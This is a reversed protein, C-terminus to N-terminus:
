AEVLAASFLPENSYVAAPIFSEGGKYKEKIIKIVYNVIEEVSPTRGIFAPRGGLYITPLSKLTATFLDNWTNYPVIILKVSYEKRLIDSAKRLNEIAKESDPDFGIIALAEIIL